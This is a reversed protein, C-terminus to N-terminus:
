EIFCIRFIEIAHIRCLYWSALAVDFQEGTATESRVANWTAALYSMSAKLRIQMNRDTANTPAPLPKAYNPWVKIIDRAIRVFAKRRALEARDSTIIIGV